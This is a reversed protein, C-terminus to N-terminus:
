APTYSFSSVRLSRDIDLFAAGALTAPGGWVDNSGAHSMVINAKVSPVDEKASYLPVDDVYFDVQGRNWMIQFKYFDNDLPGFPVWDSQGSATKGFKSTVFHSCCVEGPRDGCVEFNIETEGDNFIIGLTAVSGSMTPPMKAKWEFMGYGFREKSKIEGGKSYIDFDSPICSPNGFQWLSIELERLEDNM